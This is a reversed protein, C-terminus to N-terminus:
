FFLYNILTIHYNSNNIKSMSFFKDLNTIKCLYELYLYFLKFFFPPNNSQCCCSTCCDFSSCDKTECKFGQTVNTIWKPCSFSTKLIFHWLRSKMLTVWRHLSRCIIQLSCQMDFMSQICPYLYTSRAINLSLVQVFYNSRLSPKFFFQRISYAM